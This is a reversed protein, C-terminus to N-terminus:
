NMPDTVIVALVFNYFANTSDRALNLFSFLIDTASLAANTENISSSELSEIGCYALLQSSSSNRNNRKILSLCLWTRM